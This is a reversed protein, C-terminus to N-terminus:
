IREGKSHCLSYTQVDVFTRIFGDIRGKVKPPARVRALVRGMFALLEELLAFHPSRDSAVYEVRGM